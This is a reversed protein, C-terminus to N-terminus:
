VARLTRPAPIPTGGGGFRARPLTRAYIPWFLAMVVMMESDTLDKPGTNAVMHEIWPKLGHATQPDEAMFTFAARIENLIRQQEETTTDRAGDLM